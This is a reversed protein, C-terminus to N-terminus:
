FINKINNLMMIMILGKGKPDFRVQAQDKSAIIAAEKNTKITIHENNEVSHM